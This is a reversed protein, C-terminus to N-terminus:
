NNTRIINIIITIIIGAVIWGILFNIASTGAGKAAVMATEKMEKLFEEVLEKAHKRANYIDKKLAEDCVDYDYSWESQSNKEKSYATNQVKEEKNYTECFRAYEQNYRKRKSADRLIDYAENIDQMISTVDIGTNKDPHWKLSMERYARKVDLEDATLPIGLIRYYDKFM